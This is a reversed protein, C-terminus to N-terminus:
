GAIRYYIHGVNHYSILMSEFDVNSSFQASVQFVLQQGHTVLRKLKKSRPGWGEFAGSQVNSSVGQPADDDGVPFAQDGCALMAMRRHHIRVVAGQRDRPVANETTVATPDDSISIPRWTRDWQPLQDPLGDQQVEQTFLVEQVRVHDFVFAIPQTNPNIVLCTSHWVIGGIHIGRSAQLRNEVRGSGPVVAGAVVMHPNEWQLIPNAVVFLLNEVASPGSPTMQSAFEFNAVQWLPPKVPGRTRAGFTRRRTFRRRTFRRRAYPMPVKGSSAAQGM